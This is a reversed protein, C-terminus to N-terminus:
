QLVAGEGVRGVGNKWRVESSIIGGGGCVKGYAGVCGTKRSM